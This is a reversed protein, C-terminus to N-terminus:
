SLNTPNIEVFCNVNPKKSMNALEFLRHMIEDFKNLKLRMLVQYRFKNQIKGIPAKCVGLYIFEGDYEQKLQKVSDYYVKTQNKALEEDSASFLVRVIKAFPPFNTMERLNAEKKYFSLYDYGSAFKYVYHRPVYTQLIVIGSRDARGARGAVQTILQFTRETATYSSQYLSQDADIIGVLTVAPFDHGKAIMQTGVLIQANGNKFESLIKYHGDKQSTTDNDMRLIKVGPLLKELEEVVQQTGTSGMKLNKSHCEPCETFVKYRSACFHCKLAHEHKHYVLATDCNQCKAVYGCDKCMLFSSYGRRNIFIMAQNGEGVTKVLERALAESFIGTNGDQVEKCMDVITLPPMPKKNIRNKLELLRFEHTIAKHYSELDPTASGLVLSCGCIEARKEAVELTNYRPNSDSTYSTDHEEDVVILGLNKIPAFIASRAGVVIKADGTLIRKWEDFREGASLGSHMLAVSDGFRARFNSMVQPTLSIEPVLMIGTKGENIVNKMLAMYVETKGSGTVGHLLYKGACSEITDVVHKQDGTLVVSNTQADLSALPKRKIVVNKIKILELDILKNLAGVGFKDSLVSTKETGHELLFNILAIQKVANKRALGLYEKAKNDDALYAYRVALEKVKGTRMESPLFLRFSDCLGINYKDKLFKALEFQEPLIVAFDELPKIIKKIKSKDYSVNNVVDILYGEKIQRGFPVLVRSGIAIDFPMEYDFIKDILSSAIDVIVRGYKAM